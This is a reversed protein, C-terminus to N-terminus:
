PRCGSQATQELDVLAFTAEVSFEGDADQRAGGGELMEDAYRESLTQAGPGEYGLGLLCRARVAEWAELLPPPEDSDMRRVIDHTAAAAGDSMAAAVGDCREVVRRALAVTVWSGHPPRDTSASELVRSALAILDEAECADGGLLDVARLITTLDGEPAVEVLASRALDPLTRPVPVRSMAVTLVDLASWEPAESLQVGPGRGLRTLTGNVLAAEPLDIVYEIPPGGASMVDSLVARVGTDFDTEAGLLDRAQRISSACTVVDGSPSANIIALLHDAASRAVDIDGVEGGASAIRAVALLDECVDITASASAAVRDATARFVPGADVHPCRAALPETRVLAGLERVDDGSPCEGQWDAVWRAVTADVGLPGAVQTAYFLEFIDDNTVFDAAGEVASRLRALQAPTLRALRKDARLVEFATYIPGAITQDITDLDDELLAAFRDGDAEEGLAAAALASTYLDHGEVPYVSISYEGASLGRLSSLLVSTQHEWATFPQARAGNTCAGAM